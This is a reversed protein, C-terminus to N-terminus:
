KKEGVIGRIDDRLRHIERLIDKQDELSKGLELETLKRLKKVNALDDSALQLADIQAQKEKKAFTWMDVYEKRVNDLFENNKGTSEIYRRNQEVDRKFGENNRKMAFM